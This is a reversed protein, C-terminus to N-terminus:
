GLNQMEEESQKEMLYVVVVGMAYLGVLPVALLAQTFPDTSPTLVAAMVTSGVVVYRWVSAMDSSRVVGAKGLLVQVVPVQFALGTSFLLVLLFSFYQEISWLSEVAGDGYSVFFQLAAPALCWNGFMAGLYFLVSSSAVLPFVV